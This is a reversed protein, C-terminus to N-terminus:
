VRRKKESPFAADWYAVAEKRKAKAYAKSDEAGHGLVGSAFKKAAHWHRSTYVNEGAKSDASTPPQVKYDLVQASPRKMLAKAKPKACSKGKPKACAKGKAKAKAKCTAKAKAVKKAEDREVLADFTAQEFKNGGLPAEPESVEAAPKEAVPQAVAAATGASDGALVPLSAAVESQKPEHDQLALQRRQKPEFSEATVQPKKPTLTVSQEGTKSKGQHMMFNWFNVMMAMNNMQGMNMDMGQANDVNATKKDTHLTVDMAGASSSASPATKQGAHKQNWSLLKSTSRMPIHSGAIQKLVDNQNFVVPPDDQQYAAAFIHNPLMRPSTPFNQMYSAKCPEESQHFLAKFDALMQFIMDHNPLKSLTCLLAALSSKATNENMSREGLSRLRSIVIHSKCTWSLNPNQLQEWDKGTLYEGINSLLQPKVAIGAQLEGEKPPKSIQQDVAQVLLSKLGGEISSTGICDYLIKADSTSIHHLNGIKTCINQVMGKEMDSAPEGPKQLKARQQLMEATNGIEGVIDSASWM